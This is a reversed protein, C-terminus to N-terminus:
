KDVYPKYVFTDNLLPICHITPLRFSSYSVGTYQPRAFRATPSQLTNHALSVLQLLSCHITPSCFSSYLLICHITPLRFSSYATSDLRELQKINALRAERQDDTESETESGFNIGAAQMGDAFNYGQKEGNLIRLPWDSRGLQSIITQDMAISSHPQEHEQYVSPCMTTM